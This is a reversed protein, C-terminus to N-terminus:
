IIYVNLIRCFRRCYMPASIGESKGKQEPTQLPHFVVRLGVRRFRRCEATSSAAGQESAPVQKWMVEWVGGKQLFLAQWAWNSYICVSSLQIDWCHKLNGRADQSWEKIHEKLSLLWDSLVQVPLYSSVDGSFFSDAAPACILEGENKLPIYM